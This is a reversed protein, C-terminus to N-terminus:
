LGFTARIDSAVARLYETALPQPLISANKKLIGELAGVFLAARDPAMMVQMDVLRKRESDKLRRQNELVDQVDHWIGYDQRAQEIADRVKNVCVSLEALAEAMKDTNRVAIAADVKDRAETLAKFESDVKRLQAEGGGIDVRTLLEGLRVELLAIGSRMALLDPDAMATAHQAALRTPLDRSYLGTKLAPAQIGTMRQSPGGHVRCRDGEAGVPTQCHRDFGCAPCAWLDYEEKSYRYGCGGRKVPCTKLRMGCRAVNPDTMNM